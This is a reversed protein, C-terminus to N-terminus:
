VLNLSIGPLNTMVSSTTWVEWLCRTEPVVALALMIQVPRSGRGATGTVKGVVDITELAITTVIVVVVGVGTAAKAIEAPFRLSASLM